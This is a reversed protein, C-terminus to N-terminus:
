EKPNEVSVERAFIEALTTFRDTAPDYQDKFEGNAWYNAPIATRANPREAVDTQPIVTMHEASTGPKFTYVTGEQGISSLVMINGSDDIALNVPDTPADREVTLGEAPSWGYIRHFYNDVFCLKGDPAVAGGSISWFGGALKAVEPGVRAPAAPNSNVDLVTFERERVELGSTMDYISNSYPFKSARLFTGCGNRDCTGFGSEANVHVNRFRVNDVNQLVVASHAPKYSRTVRYGHYNAVLIDSSNRIELSIADPSEGVEQETQPAYLSWNKVRDLGLDLRRHHESSI